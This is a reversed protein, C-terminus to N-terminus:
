FFLPNRIKRECTKGVKTGKMFTAALIDDKTEVAWVAAFIAARVVMIVMVVRYLTTSNWIVM